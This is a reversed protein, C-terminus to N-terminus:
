CLVTAPEVKLYGDASFIDGYADVTCIYYTVGLRYLGVTGGFVRLTKYTRAVDHEYSFATGGFEAVKV